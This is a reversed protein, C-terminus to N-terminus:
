ELISVVIYEQTLASVHVNCIHTLILIMLTFLALRIFPFNSNMYIWQTNILWLKKHVQFTCIVFLLEKMKITAHPIKHMEIEWPERKSIKSVEIMLNSGLTSLYISCLQPPLTWTGTVNIINHSIPKDSYIHLHIVHHVTFCQFLSKCTISLDSMWIFYRAM